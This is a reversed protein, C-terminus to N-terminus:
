ERQIEWRDHGLHAEMILVRRDIADVWISGSLHEGEGTYDVVLFSRERGLWERRVPEARVEAQVHTPTPTPSLVTAHALPDIAWIGWKQGPRVETMSHLPHLPLLIVAKRSVDFRENGESKPDKDKDNGRRWEMNCQGAQFEGFFSARQPKLEPSLSSLDVEVDFDRLTGGSVVRYISVMRRLQQRASEGYRQPAPEMRARYEHYRDKDDYRSFLQILYREVEGDPRTRTVRWRTPIRSGQKTEDSPSFDFGPPEGPALRPWIDRQFLWVSMAAWFILILACLLRPPM